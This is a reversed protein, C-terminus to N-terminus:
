ELQVGALRTAQAGGHAHVMVLRTGAPSRHRIAHATTRGVLLEHGLHALLACLRVCPRGQQATGSSPGQSNKQTTGPWGPGALRGMVVGYGAAGGSTATCSHGAQAMTVACSHGDLQPTQLSRSAASLSSSQAVLLEPHVTASQSSHRHCRLLVPLPLPLYPATTTQPVLSSPCM